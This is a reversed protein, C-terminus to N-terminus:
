ANPVMLDVVCDFCVHSHRKTIGAVQTTYTCGKGALRCNVCVGFPWKRATRYLRKLEDPEVWECAPKEKLVAMLRAEWGDEGARAARQVEESEFSLKMLAMTFTVFGSPYGRRFPEAHRACVLHTFPDFQLDPLDRESAM